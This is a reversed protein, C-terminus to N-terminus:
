SCKCLVHPENGTGVDFPECCDTVGTVSDEVNTWGRKAGPIFYALNVYMCATM